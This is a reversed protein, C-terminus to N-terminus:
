RYPMLTGYWAPVYRRRLLLLFRTVRGRGTTSYLLDAFGAATPVRVAMGLVDPWGRPLGLGRSFRVVVDDTGPEDLWPVGLPHTVGARTLRADVVRGRPHLPKEAARLRSGGAFAASLAAGGARALRQGLPTTRVPRDM